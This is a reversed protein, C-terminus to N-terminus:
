RVPRCKWWYNYIGGVYYLKRFTLDIPMGVKIEAPDRDTMDIAMRGGGEFDLVTVTVPPDVTANIYDHCFSFIKGKKDLFSYPEMNDKARCTICVRQPPYQPTGCNKCRTGRMRLEKENEKWHAAPGPQRLELPPRPPPQVSVLERWRLYRNYNSLARKSAVYGKVGRRTGKIKEVNDTIKINFVDCGNGYCSLLVRNGSKADELAEILSLLSMASGADGVTYFLSDKSQTKPDFGLKKVVGGLQRQSPIYLVCSSFDKVSLKFKELAGKVAMPVIRNYGEDVIFRDEASRVFTDKDTRWFDQLEEFISYSGEVEAIQDKNGVIVAAAADGYNMEGPGTPYGLRMESAVVLVNKLSGSNVADVATRLANTGSRLSGGFDMTLTDVKCGLVMAINAATQKEKHPSTTSAFFLGDITDINVGKTCDMAAEVAMTLSDEDYNAVAREGPASPLDWARAIEARTLRYFPVYTGYFTIGAM